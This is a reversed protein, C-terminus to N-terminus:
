VRRMLLDQLLDPHDLIVQECSLKPIGDNCIVWRAIRDVPQICSKLLDGIVIHGTMVRGYIEHLGQFVCLEHLESYYLPFTKLSNLDSPALIDLDGLNHPDSLGDLHDLDSLIVSYVHQNVDVAVQLTYVVSSTENPFLSLIIYIPCECTDSNLPVQYIGARLFTLDNISIM